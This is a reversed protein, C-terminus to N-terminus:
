LDNKIINLIPYYLAANFFRGSINDKKENTFNKFVVLEIFNYYDVNRTNKSSYFTETIEKLKHKDILKNKLKLYHLSIIKNLIQRLEDEYKVFFDRSAESDMDTKFYLSQLNNLKSIINKKESYRIRSEIVKHKNNAKWIAARKIYSAKNKQYHKRTLENRKKKDKYPM